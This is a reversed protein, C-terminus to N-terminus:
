APAKRSPIMAVFLKSPFAVAPVPKVGLASLEPVATVCAWYEMGSLAEDVFKGAVVLEATLQTSSPIANMGM